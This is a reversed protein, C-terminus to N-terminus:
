EVFMRYTHALTSFTDSFEGYVRTAWMCTDSAEHILKLSTSVPQQDGPYCFTLHLWDRNASETAKINRAIVSSLIYVLIM